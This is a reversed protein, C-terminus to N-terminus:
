RTGGRYGPSERCLVTELRDNAAEVSWNQCVATYAQEALREREMPHQLLHTIANGLDTPTPDALLGTEGHRITERLGGEAIGVVPTQCAMAELPTLGFPELYPAFVMMKATQYAHLLAKDTTDSELILSINREKAQHQLHRTVPGPEGAVSMEYGILQLSPRIEEPVHSLAEVILDHRKEPRLAGVSLIKDTRAIEPAPCFFATDIGLYCVQAAVGTTRLLSERSFYSNVLVTGITGAKRVGAVYRRREQERFKALVPSTVTGLGKQRLFREPTTDFHPETTIGWECARRLTDQLYFVVGM